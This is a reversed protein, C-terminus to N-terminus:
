IGRIAGILLLILFSGAILIFVVQVVQEFWGMFNKPKYFLKRRPKLHRGTHKSFLHQRKEYPVEDVFPDQRM